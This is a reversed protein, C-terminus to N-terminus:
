EGDCYAHLPQRKRWFRYRAYRGIRIRRSETLIILEALEGAKLADLLRAFWFEELYAIYDQWGKFDQYQLHRMGFSLVALVEDNDATMDLVGSLSDPLDSWPRDALRALGRAIIEDSFVVSWRGSVQRPVEGCGWFWLSNVPLDGRRARKENLGSAHLTMQIENMLRAWRAKEKGAPLFGHIDKGAVDQIPTTVIGPWDELRVYWRTISPVEIELGADALLERIEAALILAEDQELTFVSDDMLVLNKTDAALHVPDSRMWIGAQAQDEDVLRTIAAVPLDRGPEKELGFLNCLTNCFGASPLTEHRGCALLRSLAPVPPIDQEALARAPSLLGPVFLTLRRV